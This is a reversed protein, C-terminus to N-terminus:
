SNDLIRVSTLKPKHQLLIPLSAFLILVSNHFYLVWGQTYFPDMQAPSQLISDRPSFVSNNMSNDLQTTNGLICHIFNQIAVFYHYFIIERFYNPFSFAKPRLHCYPKLLNIDLKSALSLHSDSTNKLALM